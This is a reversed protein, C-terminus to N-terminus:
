IKDKIKDSLSHKQDKLLSLKSLLNETTQSHKLAIM